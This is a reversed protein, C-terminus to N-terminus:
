AVSGFVAGSTIAIAIASTPRCDANLRLTAVLCSGRAPDAGGAGGDRISV